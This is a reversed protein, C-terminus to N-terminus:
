SWFMKMVKFLFGLEEMGESGNVVMFKSETGTSTGAKVNWIFPIMYYLIMSGETDPKKWQAHKWPEDITAHILVKWRKIVTYYAM